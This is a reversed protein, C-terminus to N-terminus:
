LEMWKKVPDMEKHNTLDSKIPSISVYNNM